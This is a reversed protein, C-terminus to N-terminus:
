FLKNSSLDLEELNIMATFWESEEGTTNLRDVKPGFDEIQNRSLDLVRLSTLNQLSDHPFQSFKNYSLSLKNLDCTYV